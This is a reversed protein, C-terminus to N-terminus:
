FGGKAILIHASHENDAGRHLPDKLCKGTEALPREAMACDRLQM